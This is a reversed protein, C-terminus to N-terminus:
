TVDIRVEEVEGGSVCRLRSLWGTNILLNSKSIQMLLELEVELDGGRVCEERGVLSGRGAVM